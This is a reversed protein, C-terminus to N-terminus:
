VAKEFSVSLVYKEELVEVIAFRLPVIGLKSLEAEIYESSLNSTKPIEIQQSVIM